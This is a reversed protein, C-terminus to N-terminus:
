ETPGFPNPKKLESSTEGHTILSAAVVLVTPRQARKPPKRPNCKPCKALTWDFYHKGTTKCKQFDRGVYVFPVFLRYKAVAILFEHGHKPCGGCYEREGGGCAWCTQFACKEADLLTLSRLRPFLLGDTFAKAQIRFPATDHAAGVPVEFAGNDLGRKLFGWLSGKTPNWNALVQFYRWKRDRPLPVARIFDLVLELVASKLDFATEGQPFQLSRVFRALQKFTHRTFDWGSDVLEQVAAPWLDDWLAVGAVAARRWGCGYAVAIQVFWENRTSRPDCEAALGCARLLDECLVLPPNGSCAPGLMSALAVADLWDPECDPFIADLHPRLSATHYKALNARTRGNATKVTERPHALVWKRTEAAIDAINNRIPMPPNARNFPRASLRTAFAPNGFM